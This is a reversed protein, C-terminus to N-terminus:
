TLLDNLALILEFSLASLELSFASLELSGGISFSRCAFLLSPSM